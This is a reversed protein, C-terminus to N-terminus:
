TAVGHLRKLVHAVRVALLQDVQEVSPEFMGIDGFARAYKRRDGAEKQRM